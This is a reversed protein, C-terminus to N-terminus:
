FVDYPKRIRTNPLPVETVVRWQCREFHNRSVSRDTNVTRYDYASQLSKVIIFQAESEKEACGNRNSESLMCFEM